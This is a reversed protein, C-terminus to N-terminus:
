RKGDAKPKRMAEHFRNAWGPKILQEARVMRRQSDALDKM